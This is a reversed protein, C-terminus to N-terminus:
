CFQKRVKTEVHSLYKKRAYFDHEYKRSYFGRYSCLLYSILVLSKSNKFSKLKNQSSSSNDKMINKRLWTSTVLDERSVVGCEKFLAVPMQSQNLNGSSASCAGTPRSASQPKSRRRESNKLKVKICFVIM